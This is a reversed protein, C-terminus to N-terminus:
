APLNNSSQRQDLAQLVRCLADLRPMEQGVLKARRLPELFISNLELPRKQEFDILTSARYSGMTRTRRILEEAFESPIQLGLRGAGLRVETMLECVLDYWGPSALLRDTPLCSGLELGPTVYGSLVSELGAASAVGLGNFPINWLLKEWRAQALNKTTSSPVDANQFLKSIEEAGLGTRALTFEGVVVLGHALHHIHGPAIRNLCVFCLAGVIPNDPFLSALEEENGLGNQLTALVTEKGVLGPLLHPFQYNATAKLAILVLDCPGVEDPARSCNPYVVFDGRVSQVRVGEKRVTDYDSRLLFHVEAGRHALKAGYYSGVAGCGVVAIKM